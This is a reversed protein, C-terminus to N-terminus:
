KRIKTLMFLIFGHVSESPTFLFGVLFLLVHIDHLLYFISLFVLMWLCIIVYVTAFRDSLANIKAKSSALRMRGLMHFSCTNSRKEIVIQDAHFSKIM